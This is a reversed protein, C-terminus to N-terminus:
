CHAEKDLSDNIEGVHRTKSQISMDAEEKVSGEEAIENRDEETGIYVEDSEFGAIKKHIAALVWAGHLVGTM